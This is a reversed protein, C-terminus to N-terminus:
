TQFCDNQNAKDKFVVKVRNGTGKQDDRKTMKVVYNIDEKHINCKLKNRPMETIGEVTTMDQDLGTIILNKEKDRQKYEDVDLKLKTITEDGETDKKEQVQNSEEVKEIRQNM